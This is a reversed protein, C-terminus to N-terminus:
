SSKPKEAPVDDGIFILDEGESELVLVGDSFSGSMEVKGDSTTVTFKEGDAKWRAESVIGDISLVAKGDPSLTIYSNGTKKAGVSAAQNADADPEFLSYTGQIANNPTAKGCACLLTLALIAILLFAWTRRM